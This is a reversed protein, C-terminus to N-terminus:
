PHLRRRFMPGSRRRFLCLRAGHVVYIRPLSQRIPQPRWDDALALLPLVPPIALACYPPEAPMFWDYNGILQMPALGRPPAGVM